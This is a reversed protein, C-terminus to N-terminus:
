IVGIIVRSVKIQLCGIEVDDSVQHLANTDEEGCDYDLDERIGHDTVRDARDQECHQDDAGGDAGDAQHDVDEHFASGVGDVDMGQFLVQSATATHLIDVVQM